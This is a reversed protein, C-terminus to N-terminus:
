SDPADPVMVGAQLAVAADIEALFGAIRRANDGFDHRGYRSASRMDVYTSSGEDTLRIAVDSPFGLIPSAAQLEITIEVPDPEDRESHGSTGLKNWGHAAVLGNVIDEIRDVSLDYRRGTIEPYNEQQIAAAEPDIARVENMVPTRLWAAALLLPPDSLDTSIDNLQPYAFVRYGSFLFPLLVVLAVMGGITANAAGRDGFNWVRSFGAAALMLAGAALVGVIGLVWLFAITEVLGYRHGVGAVVFLVASFWALRRSWRAASSTRREVVFAM